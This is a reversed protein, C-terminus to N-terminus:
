PRFMDPRAKIHLGTAPDQAYYSQEVVAGDYLSMAEKSEIFTSLRRELSDFVGADLVIKGTATLAELAAKGDKTRGDIGAPRKIFSDLNQELLVSHVAQGEDFVKSSEKKPGKWAEWFHGPSVAMQKLSTSGIHTEGHYIENSDQFIGTKM